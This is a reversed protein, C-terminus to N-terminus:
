VLTETKLTLVVKSKSSRARKTSLQPVKTDSFNGGDQTPPLVDSTTQDVMPNSILHTLSGTTIRSPRQSRMSIGNSPLLTREGDRSGFTTPVTANLLERCQCEQDLISLDISISVLNKTSAKLELLRLRILISLRGDKTLTRNPTETETTLLLLKDKKM